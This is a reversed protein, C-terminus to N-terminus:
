QNFDVTLTTHHRQHTFANSTNNSHHQRPFVSTSPFFFFGVPTNDVVFSVHDQQSRVWDETTLTPGIVAQTTAGCPTQMIRVQVYMCVCAYMYTCEM